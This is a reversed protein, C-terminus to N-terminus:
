SIRDGNMGTIGNLVFGKPIDWGEDQRGFERDMLKKFKALFESFDQFEIEKLKRFVRKLKGKTEKDLGSEMGSCRFFDRENMVFILKGNGLLSFKRDMNDANEIERLSGDCVFATINFTKGSRDYYAKIWPALLNPLSDTAEEIGMGSRSMASPNRVGLIPNPAESVKVPLGFYLQIFIAAIDGVAKDNGEGLMCPLAHTLEHLGIEVSSAFITAWDAKSGDPQLEKDPDPDYVMKGKYVNWLFYYPYKMFEYRFGGGNNSFDIDPLKTIGRAEPVKSCMYMGGMWIGIAVLAEEARWFAGPTIRGDALANNLRDTIWGDNKELWEAFREAKSNENGAYYQRLLPAFIAAASDFKMDKPNALKESFSKKWDKQMSNSASNEILPEIKTIQAPVSATLVEKPIQVPKPIQAPASGTFM